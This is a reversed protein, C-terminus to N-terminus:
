KLAGKGSEGLEKSRLTAGEVANMVTARLRGQELRHLGVITTGGPSAVQNKLDSPSVGKELVMKAAGLVTQAALLQAVPRSLGMKVGGDALAEIFVYVYAPGGGSLGTVADMLAEEVVVAKGVSEFLTQGLLLEESSVGPGGALAAAGELISSATNPMVRIVRSNPGLGKTIQSIPIGAAVSIWLQSSGSLSQLDFLIEDIVQPKVCIVVIDAWKVADLNTLGIGIGYREKLVKLRDQSIDTAHIQSPPVVQKKVVGSVLAEAINGAGIFAIKKTKLM